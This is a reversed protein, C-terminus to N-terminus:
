ILLSCLTVFCYTDVHMDVHSLTVFLLARTIRLLNSIIGHEMDLPVRQQIQM